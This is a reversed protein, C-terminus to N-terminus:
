ILPLIIPTRQPPCPPEEKKKPFFPIKAIPINSKLYFTPEQGEQFIKGRRSFLRRVGMPLISLTKPKLLIELGPLFADLHSTEVKRCSTILIKSM